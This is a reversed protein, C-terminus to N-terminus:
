IGTFLGHLYIHKVLVPTLLRDSEVSSSNNTCMPCVLYEVMGIMRPAIARQYGHSAPYCGHSRTHLNSITHCVALGHSNADRYYSFHCTRKIM